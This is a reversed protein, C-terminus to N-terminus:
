TDGALGFSPGQPGPPRIRALPTVSATGRRPRAEGGRSSLGGKSTLSPRMHLQPEEIISSAVSGRCAADGDVGLLSLARQRCGRPTSGSADLRPALHPPRAGIM